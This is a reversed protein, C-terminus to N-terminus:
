AGVVYLGNINNLSILDAGTIARTLFSYNGPTGQNNGFITGTVAVRYPLGSTKGAVDVSFTAIGNTVTAVASAFTSGDSINKLSFTLDVGNLADPVYMVFTNTGNTITSNYINGAFNGLFNPTIAFNVVPAVKQSAGIVAARTASNFLYLNGGFLSSIMGVTYETVEGGSIRDLFHKSLYYWANFDINLASFNTIKSQDQVDTKGANSPTIRASTPTVVRSLTYNAYNQIVQAPTLGNLESIVNSDGVLSNIFNAPIVASVKAM